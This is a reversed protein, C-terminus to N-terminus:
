KGILQKLEEEKAWTNWLKVVNGQDNILAQVHGKLEEHDHVHFDLWAFGDVLDIEQTKCDQWNIFDWLDRTGEDHKFLMNFSLVKENGIYGVKEALEIWMGFGGINEKAFQRIQKLAEKTLKM